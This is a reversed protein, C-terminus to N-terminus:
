VLPENSKSYDIFEIIAVIDHKINNKKLIESLIKSLVTCSWHMFEDIIDEKWKFWLSKSFLNLDIFM